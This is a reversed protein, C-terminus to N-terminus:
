AFSPLRFVTKTKLALVAARASPSNRLLFTHVGNSGAFASSNVTVPGVPDNVGAFPDQGDLEPHPIQVLFSPSAIKQGDKSWPDLWFINNTADGVQAQDKLVAHAAMLELQAQNLAGSADGHGNSGTHSSGVVPVTFNLATKSFWSM